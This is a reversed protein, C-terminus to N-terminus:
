LSIRYWIRWVLMVLVTHYVTLLIVLSIKPTLPNLTVTSNSVVFFDYRSYIIPYNNNCETKSVMWVKHYKILMLYHTEPLIEGGGFAAM